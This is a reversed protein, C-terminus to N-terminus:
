IRAVPLTAAARGAPATTSGPRRGDTMVAATGRERALSLATAVGIGVLTAFAMWFTWTSLGPNLNSRWGHLTTWFPHSASAYEKGPGEMVFVYGFLNLWAAIGVITAILRSDDTGPRAVKLGLAAGLLVTGIPVFPLGIKIDAMLDLNLTWLGALFATFLTGDRAIVYWMWWMEAAIKLPLGDRVRAFYPRALVLFWAVVSLLIGVDCITQATWIELAKLNTVV